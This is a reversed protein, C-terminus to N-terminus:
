SLAAIRRTAAVLTPDEGVRFMSRRGSREFLVAIRTSVASARVLAFVEYWSLAHLGRGLRKEMAAVAEERTGFGPVARGTLEKQLHELALFWGLDVEVPGASVMDWDLVARPALTAADFVVNGLRVDGWLLGPPPEPEPRHNRCWNLADSLEQPADGGTAWAVYTDWFGLEADLGSRVTLGDLPVKHIDALVDLFGRWVARRSRDDPLSRLWPDAATFEAPIPGDVFPMAVFPADLFATDGEYTVPAAVPVGAAGVAQQVAAQQSLDYAPFIGDGVPPLRVVLQREVILTECSWGPAPRSIDGVPRGLWRGLGQRVRAIDREAVLTM